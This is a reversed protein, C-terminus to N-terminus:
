IEELDLRWEQVNTGEEIRLKFDVVKMKLLPCYSLYLSKQPTKELLVEQMGELSFSVPTRDENIVLISDEVAPRSLAIRQDKVEQWLRQICHLTVQDGRRLAEFGPAVKGKGSCVTRYKMLGPTGIYLLEGNVTRHLGGLPVVELVQTCEEMLIPPIGAGQIKLLTPSM